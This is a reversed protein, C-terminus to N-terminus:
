SNSKSNEMRRRFASYVPRFQQPALTAARAYAKDANSYQYDREEAVGLLYFADASAPNMEVANRLMSAARETKDSELDFQAVRMIMDFSPNYQLGRLLAREALADNGSMRAATALATYLRLPDAGNRIGEQAISQAARVNKARGYIQVVLNIYAEPLSPAAEIARHFFAEAGRDDGARISAEAAATFYRAQVRASRARSAAQAFLRVEDRYDGLVNYFGGLGTIAGPYGAAAAKMFGREVAKQEAPLLWPIIRKDLYSHTGLAPSNFISETVEDLSENENGLQSLTEAYRDRIIPNAPDLWVATALEQLRLAPTMNPGALDLLMIHAAASAPHEIVVERAQAPFSAREIDYPYALGPQMLALVILLAGGLAAGGAAVRLLHRHGTIALAGGEEAILSIRIAIAFLLTFLLANAPIHLCFDILEHLAMSALALTLATILPRDASSLRHRAQVLSRVALGIFWLLGLLGIFGTEAIFQLYDNHAERFYYENWPGAQYHPFIEPWSGLGVGLMPFNRVMNLSDKWVTPRLGLGGGSAITQGLRVDSQLRGQPGVILMAILALALFAALGAGSIAAISFRLTFPLERMHADITSRRARRERSLYGQYGEKWRAWEDNAWLLSLIVATATAEIWAARSLSLVIASLIVFAGGACLMRVAAASRRSHSYLEYFVGALALPFIMTLYNAFHDPNVFPGAARPFSGVLPAGWDMPVFLWLIKGNWYVREVLGVAAVMSGTALSAVLASRYFRRAGEEGDAFPYGIVVFFLGAYAAFRLAASATLAPSIALPRWTAPFISSWRWYGVGANAQHAGAGPKSLHALAKKAFPM